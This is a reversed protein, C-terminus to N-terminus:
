PLSANITQANALHMAVSARISTILAKVDADSADPALRADILDLVETHMAVQSSIYVKDFAAPATASLTSIVSAADAALMESVDSPEPNLHKSSVLALTNGNAATHEEIMMQAFSIAATNQLGPKAVQAVSVEGENATSLVKLIQADNLAAVAGAAGGSGAEGGVGDGGAGASEGGSGATFDGAAGAIEDSGASGGRGAGPGGARAGTGSSGGGSTRGGFGGTNATPDDDDSCAASVVLPLALVLGLFLRSKM